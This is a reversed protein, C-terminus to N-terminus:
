LISEQNHAPSEQELLAWFRGGQRKSLSEWPGTEVIQGRELFVISDARRVTSLRHSIVVMTLEGHLGEIADQIRQENETDLSSTAEDLILVCPQRLLARALAIRQREGGSLRIGRDGVVTDLGDPLGAVFTDAAAHRLAGWLEKEAVDPRVSLLNGRITDHFLFTEQPVYGVSRRWSYVSERNLPRGDIFIKGDTPTLLGMILDALTTKGSGSPGVLAVTARARIDLNIKCLALSQRNGSYSFSVRRFRIASRLRLPRVLSQFPAEGSVQFRRLMLIAERYAPLSNDIYQTYHQILSIKPSLRAFVFVALLLSSSPIALFTAGIYFLVSLAVTAGIRHYMQTTADVEFFCIGQAAVEHATVSFSKAYESELGYSKAIKMGSLHESAVVYMNEIATHCDEGLSHVKKNYPQLLLFIVVISILAFFTMICSVSLVMCIYIVTLLVTAMLELLKGCAYGVRISDNTLARIVDTGRIQTLCQWQARAFAQYLRDQVFQTYGLSLRGNLVEQYRSTMAHVAVIAVYVCLISLLTLPLGTMDFFARVMMSIRDSKGGGDFGILDLLPILMILGAGEALGLIVLVTLYIWANRGAYGLFSLLFSRATAFRSLETRNETSGQDQYRPDNM